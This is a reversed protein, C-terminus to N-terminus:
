ETRLSTVTTDLHTAGADAGTFKLAVPRDLVVDRGLFVQGM